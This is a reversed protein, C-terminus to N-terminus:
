RSGVESKHEHEPFSTFVCTVSGRFASRRGCSNEADSLSEHLGTQLSTHDANWTRNKIWRKGDAAVAAAPVVAEAM